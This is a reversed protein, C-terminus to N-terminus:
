DTKPKLGEPIRDWAFKVNNEFMTGARERTDALTNAVKGAYYGTMDTLLLNCDTSTGRQRDKLIIVDESYEGFFAAYVIDHLVQQEPRLRIKVIGEESRIHYLHAWRWEHSLIDLM